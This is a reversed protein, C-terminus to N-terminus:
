TTWRVGGNEAIRALLRRKWVNFEEYSSFKKHGFRPVGAFKPLPYVKPNTAWLRYKAEHDDTIKMTHGGSLAM